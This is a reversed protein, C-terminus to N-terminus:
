FNCMVSINHVYFFTVINVLCLHCWERWEGVAEQPSSVLAGRQAVGPTSASPPAPASTPPPPLPPPAAATQMVVPPDIAGMAAGTAQPLYASSTATDMSLCGQPHPERQSADGQWVAVPRHNSSILKSTTAMITSPRPQGQINHSPRPPYPSPANTFYNPMAAKDPIAHKTHNIVPYNRLSHDVLHPWSPGAPQQSHHSGPWSNTDTTHGMFSLPPPVARSTPPRAVTPQTGPPQFLERSSAGTGTAGMFMLPPAHPDRGVQSWNNWSERQPGATPFVTYHQGNRHVLAPTMQGQGDVVMVRTRQGHNLAQTLIQRSHPGM